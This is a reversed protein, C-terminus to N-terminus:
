CCGLMLRDCDPPASTKAILSKMQMYRLGAEDPEFGSITGIKSMGFFIVYKYGQIFM